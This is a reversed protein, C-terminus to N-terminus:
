IICEQYRNAQASQKVDESLLDPVLPMTRGYWSSGQMQSYGGGIAARFDDMSKFFADNSISQEPEIALHDCSYGSIGVMLLLLVVTFKKLLKM